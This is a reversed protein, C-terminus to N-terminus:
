SGPRRAQVAQRAVKRANRHGMLDQALRLIFLPLLLLLWGGILFTSLILAILGLITNRSGRTVPLTGAARQEEIGLTRVEMTSVLVDPTAEGSEHWPNHAIRM